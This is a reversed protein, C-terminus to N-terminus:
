ARNVLIVLNRFGHTRCLIYKIGGEGGTSTLTGHYHILPVGMRGWRVCGRKRM